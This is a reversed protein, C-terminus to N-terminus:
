RDGTDYRRLRLGLPPASEFSSISRSLGVGLLTKPTKPNDDRVSSRATRRM